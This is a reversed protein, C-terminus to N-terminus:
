LACSALLVIISHSTVSTKNVIQPNVAYIIEYNFIILM